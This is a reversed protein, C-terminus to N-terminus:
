SFYIWVCFCGSYEVCIQKTELVSGFFVFTCFVHNFHLVLRSVRSPKCILMMQWLMKSRFINFSFDSVEFWYIRWSLLIDFLVHTFSGLFFLFLLNTPLWLMLSKSCNIVYRFLLSFFLFFTVISCWPFMFQALWVLLSCCQLPCGRCCPCFSNLYACSQVFVFTVNVVPHFLAAQHELFIDCFINLIYSCIRFEWWYLIELFFRIM